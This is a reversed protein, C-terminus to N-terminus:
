SRTQSTDCKLIRSIAAFFEGDNPPKQFVAQVGFKQAELSLNASPHGTLLIIPPRREHPQQALSRILELGSMIPMKNDTIVLDFHRTQITELAEQGNSVEQCAYGQKELHERLTLRAPEFDDVILIQKM